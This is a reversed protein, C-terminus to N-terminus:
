ECLNNCFFFFIRFLIHMCKLICKFITTARHPTHALTGGTHTHTHLGALPWTLKTAQWNFSKIRQPPEVCVFRSAYVAQWHHCAGWFNNFFLPQRLFYFFIMFCCVRLICYANLCPQGCLAGPAVRLYGFGFPRPKPKPTARQPEARASRDSKKEPNVYYFM